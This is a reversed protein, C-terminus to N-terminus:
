ATAGAGSGVRPRLRVPLELWGRTGHTPYWRRDEGTVEISGTRDLLLRATVRAELRAIPAGLCHHIGEGFGLNRQLPRFLDLAESNGWRREDRNASAFLLIVRSGAVLRQGHLDIDTTVTRAMYHSPPEFRLVEEVADGICDPQSRLREAQDPHLALLRVLSCLLGSTTETFAVGLLAATGLVDARTIRGDDQADLLLGLVGTRKSGGAWEEIRERVFEHYRASAERSSAPIEVNGPVRTVVDRLFAAFVAEDAAPVGIVRRAVAVPLAWAFAKVFDAEGSALLAELLDRATRDVFDELEATARPTFASNVVGRLLDHPPPDSDIISGGSISSGTDDLDVGPESSFTRWDRAAAQVDAFRSLAWVDRAACHYLPAEARMRSYTAWPDTSSVDSFPDYRIPETM